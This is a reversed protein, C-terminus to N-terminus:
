ASPHRAPDVRRSGEDDRSQDDDPLGQEVRALFLVMALAVVPAVLVLLVV